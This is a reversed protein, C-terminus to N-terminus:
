RPDEVAGVSTARPATLPQEGCRQAVLILLASVLVVLLVSGGVWEPVPVIMRATLYLLVTILGRPALWLLSAGFEGGFRRLLLARTGYIVILSLLAGLWAMPMLLTSIETWYGLLVFFFARVAFTLEFVIAKFEALTTEYDKSLWDSFLPVRALLAPNNITLGFLLVMILPALHLLKGAAYLGLLGALLPLFRIVGQSHMLMLALGIACAVSLILSIIGGGLLGEAVGLFSGDSHVLAFFVIVGLIDSLASEYVVFERGHAPLFQSSPIAVASSIVAMPVAIVASKFLGFAFYLHILPTLVLVCVVFGLVAMSMAARAGHVRERSLSIDLAGELVILVLGITGIIPVIMDLGALTWGFANLLPKAIMGAAILLLVPPIRYRQGAREIAFAALLIVSAFLISVHSNM